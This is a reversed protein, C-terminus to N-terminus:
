DFPTNNWLHEEGSCALREKNIFHYYSFDNKRRVDIGIFGADLLEQFVLRTKLRWDLAAEHDDAKLKQFDAPIRVFWSDQSHIDLFSCIDKLINQNTMGVKRGMTTIAEEHKSGIWWEITFRDSPIGRNLQDDMEGYLNETYKTILGHLHHLNLYANVSLLPDFTWIILNYGLELCKERQKEKLLRGIGQKQHGPDIGLMHSCFYAKGNQFGPFGYSFGALKEKIYAGLILGGHKSVTFTQHTPLPDMGWVKRELAQVEELEKMETLKRVKVSM